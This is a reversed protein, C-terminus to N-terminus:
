SARSPLSGAVVATVIALSILFLLRLLSEVPHKESVRERYIIYPERFLLIILLSGLIVASSLAGYAYGRSYYDGRSGFAFRTAECFDAFRVAAFGWIAVALPVHLIALVFRRTREARVASRDILRSWLLLFAGGLWTLGFYTISLSWREFWNEAVRLAELQTSGTLLVMMVVAFVAIVGLIFTHDLFLHTKGITERRFNRAWHPISLIGRSLVEPRTHAFLDYLLVRMKKALLSYPYIATLVPTQEFAKTLYVELPFIALLPKDDFEDRLHLEYTRRLFPASLAPLVKNFVLRVDANLRANVSAIADEHASSDRNTVRKLQRLFNFTGHFTIRDPESILLTCDAALVAAFSTRDPGGHCDLVASSCEFQSTVERLFRCLEVHM